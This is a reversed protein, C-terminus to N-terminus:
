LDNSFTGPMDDNGDLNDSNLVQLTLHDDHVDSEIIENNDHSNNTFISSDVEECASAVLLEDSPVMSLAVLPTIGGNPIAPLEFEVNFFETPIQIEAKVFGAVADDVDSSVESLLRLTDDFEALQSIQMMEDQPLMGDLWAAFKEESIAPTFHKNM